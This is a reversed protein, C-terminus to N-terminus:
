LKKLRSIARVNVFLSIVIEAFIGFLLGSLVYLGVISPYGLFEFNFLCIAAPLIRLLSARQAVFTEFSFKKSVFKTAVYYQFSILILGIISSWFFYPISVSFLGGGSPTFNRTSPGFLWVLVM